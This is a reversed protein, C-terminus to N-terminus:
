LVLEWTVLSVRPWLITWGKLDECRTSLSVSVVGFPNSALYNTIAVELAEEM